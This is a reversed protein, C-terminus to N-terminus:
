FLNLQIQKKEIDKTKKKPKPTEHSMLINEIDAVFPSLERELVRGYIRRKKVHTFYLHEKARTMAVYFLRKEEDVDPAEKDPRHYPIYGNECGVIFVVPFELGKAAHMTLLAVKESEFEYIDTDTQLSLTTFFDGPRNQYGEAQRCIASFAEETVQNSTIALDIQNTKKRLYHLQEVLQIAAMEKRYEDFRSIMSKIKLQNSANMGRVPFRGINVLAEQLTFTNQFCWKKFLTYTKVGIGGGAFLMIRELDAYSGFGSLIKLYSLLEKIGKRSYANERSVMQYPIGASEFTKALIKGQFGTRYLVAFDSFSMERNQTVGDVKGFDISYMGLGGIMKEIIKGVAVAESKDTEHQLVSITKKGSIESYIRSGSVTVHQDRIVHYSAELITETSRYNRTLNIVEAEPYDEIFKKFYKVDSGRFGYISQDPDGIAFINKDKPALARIIRYQGQNLDQYEDVFVHRYREQYKRCINKGTEFLKVVKFILDEYDYVGQVSLINQYASYVRSLTESECGYGKAVVSLDDPPDLIKQKASVIMEIFARAPLPTQLGSEQTLSFAEQILHNRDEEDIITYRNKNKLEKLIHFCLAHFTAVFPQSGKGKLLRMLRGKMEQSAKNTFTVALIHDAPVGKELICYAIKHTLTLTKGTGPGAVILLPSGEHKVAKRQQENLDELGALKKVTQLTQVYGNTKLEKERYRRTNNSATDLPTKEQKSESLQPPIFLHKQVQNEERETESFIRVRGFEGDFGPILGIDRNRIKKIAKGLLPIGALEIKDISLNQLINFEPGLARLVAGYSKLVKQSQPGVRYIESLIEVLPVITFFPKYKEPKKGYRRDALEEVRYLVGLTLPKGCVTCIGKNKKSEQPWSCVGCKRHGDLHYKGEEPYFEFTGLFKRPDGSAMASRIHFFDLETDFLNAERGLKSPSHADSNSILTLNDLNTVRWNMAPDSSLGTEAAFIHPTLEEFCEEISDFGSKSGLLSFWPTWIHAPVLYAEDTVDLVIELLHKADLGLIPRGDSKINGIGDLKKNFRDAKELSQFFVLNHNKRTKGNKKYINSIESELIFRVPARCSDPITKDCAEALDDRLRFLGPEAPILKDRIEAFWGPHTFDGTGVVTIGKLQASVYINELDLNKATARSYKSHIHLDAIFKM